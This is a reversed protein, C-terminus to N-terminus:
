PMIEMSSALLLFVVFFALAVLLGFGFGLRAPIPNQTEIAMKNAEDQVNLTMSFVVGAVFFLLAMPWIGMLLMVIGGAFAILPSWNEGM